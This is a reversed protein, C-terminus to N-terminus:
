SSNQEANAFAEEKWSNTDEGSNKWTLMAGLRMREGEGGPPM